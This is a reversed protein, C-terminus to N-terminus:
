RYFTHRGIKKTIMMRKAWYPRGFAEINEFHTAGGTTDELKGAQIRRVLEDIYPKYILYFGKTVKNTRGYFGKMVVQEPDKGSRISRNQIVCAVAYMGQSGEGGAEGAITLAIPNIQLAQPSKLFCFLFFVVSSVTLLGFRWGAFGRKKFLYSVRLNSRQGRVTLRSM